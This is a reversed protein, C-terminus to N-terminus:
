GAQAALQALDRVYADRTHAPRTALHTAFAALLEANRNTAIGAAPASVTARAPRKPM